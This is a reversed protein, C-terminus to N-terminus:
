TISSASPKSLSLISVLTPVYAASVLPKVAPISTRPYKPLPKLLPKEKEGETPIKLEEKEKKEKKKIIQKIQTKREKTQEKLVNELKIIENTDLNKILEKTFQLLFFRKFNDSGFEEKKKKSKIQKLAQSPAM